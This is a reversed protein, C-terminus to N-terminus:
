LFNMGNSFFRKKRLTADRSIAFANVLVKTGRPIHYGMVECDERSERPVLLPNPPHLRLVEKIVMQLYSLGVLDTNTIVGRRSQGLVSCVEQQAKKMTEPNKILESM